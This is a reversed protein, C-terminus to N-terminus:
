NADKKTFVLFTAAMIAAVYIIDVILSFGFTMDNLTPGTTMYLYLNTNNFLVYKFWSKSSLMLLLINGAFYIVMSIAVAGSKSKFVTSVMISILMYVTCEIFYFVAMLMASQLPSVLLINTADFMVLVKYESDFGYFIGGILFLLLFSVVFLATMIILSMIIKSMLFKWRKYPRILLLKITGASHEGAITGAGIIMGAILLFLYLISFAFMLFGYGKDLSLPTTLSGLTDRNDLMFGIKAIDSRLSYKSTGVVLFNYLGYINSLDDDSFNEADVVLALNQKKFYEDIYASEVAVKEIQRFYDDIGSFGSAYGADLMSKLPESYYDAYYRSTVNDEDLFASLALLVDTKDNLSAFYEDYIDRSIVVKLSDNVVNVTDQLRVAIDVSERTFVLNDLNLTDFFGSITDFVNSYLMNAAINGNATNIEEDVLRRRADFNQYSEPASTILSSILSDAPADSYFYLFNVGTLYGATMMSSILEHLMVFRRYAAYLAEIKERSFAGTGNAEAESVAEDLADFAEGYEIIEAEIFDAVSASYGSAEAYYFFRKARNLNQIYASMESKRKAYIHKHLPMLYADYYALELFLEGGGPASLADKLIAVLKLKAEGSSLAEAVASADADSGSLALSLNKYLQAGERELRNAIADADNERFLALVYDKRDSLSEGQGVFLSYFSADLLMLRQVPSLGMDAVPDDTEYVRDVAGAFGAYEASEAAIKYVPNLEMYYEDPHVTMARYKFERTFASNLESADGFEADIEYKEVYSSYDANELYAFYDDPTITGGLFSTVDGLGAGNPNYVLATVIVFAIVFAVLVYFTASKVFKFLEGRVLIYMEKFNFWNKIKAALRAM